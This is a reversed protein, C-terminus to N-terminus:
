AQKNPNFDALAIAPIMQGTIVEKYVRFLLHPSALFVGTCLLFLFM